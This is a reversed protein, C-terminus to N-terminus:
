DTSGGDLKKYAEEAQLMKSGTPPHEMVDKVEERRRNLEAELESFSAKTLDPKPEERLKKELHYQKSFRNVIEFGEALLKNLGDQMGTTLDYVYVAEVPAQAEPQETYESFTLSQCYPYVHKELSVSTTEKWENATAAYVFLKGCEPNLCKFRM